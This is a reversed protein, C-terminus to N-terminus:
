SDHGNMGHPSLLSLCLPLFDSPTEFIDFM